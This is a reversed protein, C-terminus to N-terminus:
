EGCYGCLDSKLRGWKRTGCKRCRLLCPHVPLAYLTFFAMRYAKKNEETPQLRFSLWAKGEAIEMETPLPKGQADYRRTPITVRIKKEQKRAVPM